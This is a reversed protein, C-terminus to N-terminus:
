KGVQRSSRQQGQGTKKPYQLSCGAKHLLRRVQRESYQRDFVQQIVQCVLRSTWIGTDFGAAIPGAIVIERLRALQEDTMRCPRGPKRRSVLGNTGDRAYSAQWNFVSRLSVECAEAAEARSKGDRAVMLLARSRRRFSHDKRLVGTRLCNVAGIEEDTMSFRPSSSM